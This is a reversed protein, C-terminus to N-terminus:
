LTCLLSQRLYQKVQEASEYDDTRLKIPVGGAQLWQTLYPEFDDILINPSGDKNKAHRFKKRLFYTKKPKLELKTELWRKKGKVSDTPNKSSPCSCIYYESSFELITELVAKTKLGFCPLNAFFNEVGGYNSFFADAKFKNTWIERLNTKETDTLLKYQKSYFKQSVENFLDVLVGDM